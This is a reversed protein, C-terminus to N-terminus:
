PIEGSIRGKTVKQGSTNYVPIYDTQRPSDTRLELRGSKKTELFLGSNRQKLFYNTQRPSGNEVRPKQGSKM